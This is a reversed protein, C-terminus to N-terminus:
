RTIIQYTIYIDLTGDGTATSNFGEIQVGKNELIADDTNNPVVMKNTNMVSSILGVFSVQPVSLGETVLDVTNNDFPTLGSTFWADANIIRIYKGSGPSAIVSVPTVGLSKIQASTLSVKTNYTGGTPGDSDFEEASAILRYDAQGSNETGLYEFYAWGSTVQSHGSADTVFLIDGDKQNAQDAYMAAVTAYDSASQIDPRWQMGVKQWTLNTNTGDYFLKALFVQNPEFVDGNMLRTGAITPFTTKGSTNVFVYARGGLVKTASLTFSSATSPSSAFGIYGEHNTLPIQTPTVLNADIPKTEAFDVPTDPQATVDVFDAATAEGVDPDSINPGGWETYTEYDGIFLYVHHEGDETTTFFVPGTITWAETGGNTGLNFIDEVTDGSGLTGLDNFLDTNNQQTITYPGGALEVMQATVLSVGGGISLDNSSQTTLLKFVMRTVDGNDNTSVTYFFLDKGAEATFPGNDNIAEAIYTLLPQTTDVGTLDLFRRVGKHIGFERFLSIAGQKWTGDPGDTTDSKDLFWVFDSTSLNSGSTVEPQDTMLRDAM